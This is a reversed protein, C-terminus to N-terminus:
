SRVLDLKRAPRPPLAAVEKAEQKERRRAWTIGSTLAQDLDHFFEYRISGKSRWRTRRMWGGEPRSSVICGGIPLMKQDARLVYTTHKAHVFMEYDYFTTM